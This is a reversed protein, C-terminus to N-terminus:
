NSHLKEEDIQSTLISIGLKQFMQEIEERAIDVCCERNSLIKLLNTFNSDHLCEGESQTGGEQKRKEWRRSWESFLHKTISKPFAAAEWAAVEAQHFGMLAAMIRYDGGLDRKVDMILSVKELTDQLMWKIDSQFGCRRLVTTDYGTCMLDRIDEQKNETDDSVKENNQEAQIVSSIPYYSVSELDGHNALSNSSLLFYDLNTGPCCVDVVDYVDDTVLELMKHCDGIDEKKEARVCINIARWGKTMYVLCEVRHCVKLGNKWICIKPCNMGRFHRELRTQLRPFLGPSFSDTDGRCQFRRGYYITKLKDIKWQHKPMLTQLLGPIINLMEDDQYILELEKLLEIMMNIDALGEFVDQFDNREYRTKTRDALRKTYQEFIETALMPGIVRNCLWQPNLVIIDDGETITSEIHLIEGSYHLFRTAKALFDEDVMPDIVKVERVYSNWRLVPFSSQVWTEKSDSIKACLKPIYEKKEEKQIQLEDTIDFHLLFVASEARLFMNHTVYYEVQGAFDWMSFKGVKSIHVKGVDIGPTHEYVDAGSDPAKEQSRKVTKAELFGRQLAHKLTTKGKGGYGCLCIKVINRRVGPERMLINYEQKRRYQKHHDILDRRIDRDDTSDIITKYVDNNDYYHEIFARAVGIAGSLGRWHPSQGRAVDVPLEGNWNNLHDHANYEFLLKVTRYSNSEAALHLPTNGFKNRVNVSAKNELLLKVTKESGIKAALHLPSNGSNNLIEITAKNELLTKVITFSGTKAAKHLPSNGSNDSIDIPAKNELLLKVTGESGKRTVIHLPSEGSKNQIDVHAKYKLLVKVAKDIGTWLALHLPTDGSNNQIDIPAKHELLLEMVKDRNAKAAAHLPTNGSENQIDVTAKHELLVKVINYLGGGAAIHLQTDGFENQIDVNAKHELLVKVMNCLGDGAAIHLPTDGLMNQTDISAKYEMLVDVVNHNNSKVALHLPTNYSKNEKNISSKHELLLKVVKNMDARAAEHLPTNGSENQIDVCAKDELLAKVVHDHGRGAAIHLPTNGSMNQKDISAKYEMLVDVANYKDSKVALHLPTDYFNNQIDISAKHELLLKVVKDTDAMVAEHLPTNGSENKIDVSAKHELFVKVVHDHGCGAAIHLPTNGSNDQIDVAAKHELLLKVLMDRGAYAVAHLPTNGSENTVDVSAKHEILVKAVMFLGYGAAIHLPTDGSKNPIDVSAKNELLLKVVHDNQRGAALHLPTDGSKTQVDVAAESKLLLGVIVENSAFHLPTWDMENKANVDAGHSILVEAIDENNDFSAVHLATANDAWDYGRGNIDYGEALLSRIRQVDRERAAKILDDPNKKKRMSM